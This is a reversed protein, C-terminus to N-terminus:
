KNSLIFDQIVIIQNQNLDVREVAEKRFPVTLLEGNESSVELFDGAGYNNVARVKGIVHGQESIVMMGILDAHYFEDEPAEPLLCRDLYLEKGRLLEAQNRDNIGKVSVVVIDPAPISVITLHYPSGQGDTLPGYATLSEPNVTFTKVKVAGRIGHPATFVGLCIKSAEQASKVQDNNMALFGFNNKHQQKLQRKV